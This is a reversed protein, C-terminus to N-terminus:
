RCRGRRTSSPSSRSSRPWRMSTSRSPPPPRRHPRAGNGTRAAPRRAAHAALDTRADVGATLCGAPTRSATCRPRRAGPSWTGAPPRNPTPRAPTTIPSRAPSSTRASAVPRRPRRVVRRGARPLQRRHRRLMSEYVVDRLLAHKFLFERRNDYSSRERQHVLDRDRLQDLVAGIPVDDAPVPDGAALSACRRRGLVGPRDGLGTAAGPAGGGVPRRPPSAARQAPHAARRGDRAPRRAGALGHRRTPHRRIRPVLEGAGRRLVPQGRVRFRRPRRASRARPRRGEPDRRAPPADGTALALAALHPHPLRPGRGLAPAARAVDPAVDRGGPREFGAAGARRCPDVRADGRRGLPPGGAAPRGAGARRTSAPVRRPPEGGTREPEAPAGTIRATEGIEFGLWLAIMHAREVTEDGPGLAQELGREWKRRVDVPGDNGSIGFRTAFMDHLLAFPLTAAAPAARGGFWWVPEDLEDLWVAFDSVVRSKGVGADGVVTVVQWQGEEAVERFHGQLARMELERGVTRTEVGEIGRSSGERFGRERVGEVLYGDVPADIGKLRLGPVLRVDFVGRVPRLTDASIMVGGPPAASQIRSARNVVEGVM